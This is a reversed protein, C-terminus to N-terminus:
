GRIEYRFGLIFRRLYPSPLAFTRLLDRSYAPTPIAWISAFIREALRNRGIAQQSGSRSTKTAVHRAADRISLHRTPSYIAGCRAYIARM